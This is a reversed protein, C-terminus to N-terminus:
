QNYGVCCAPISSMRHNAPKDQATVLEGGWPDELASPERGTQCRSQLCVLGSM